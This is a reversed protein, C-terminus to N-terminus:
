LEGADTNGRWELPRSKERAQVFRWWEVKASCDEGSEEGVIVWFPIAMGEREESECEDIIRSEGCIFVPAQDCVCFVSLDTTEPETLLM